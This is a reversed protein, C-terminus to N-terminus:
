LAAKKPWTALLGPSLPPSKRSKGAMFELIDSRNFRWSRGIRTAPIVGTEAFKYVTKIHLRLLQAVEPAIMMEDMM